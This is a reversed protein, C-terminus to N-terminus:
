VDTLWSISDESQSLSLIPVIEMDVYYQVGRRRALSSVILQERLPGPGRGVAGLDGVLHSVSITDSNNRRMELHLYLTNKEEDDKTTLYLRLSTNLFGLLLFKGSLPYGGGRLPRRSALFEGFIANKAKFVSNKPWNKVSKKKASFPPVGGM